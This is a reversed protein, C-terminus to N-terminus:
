PTHDLTIDKLICGEAMCGDHEVWCDIHHIVGCVPCTVTYDRDTSHAQCSPCIKSTEAALPHREDRHQRYPGSYVTM